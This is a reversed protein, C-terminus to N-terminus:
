RGPPSGARTIAASTMEYADLRRAQTSCRLWIAANRVSSVWRM